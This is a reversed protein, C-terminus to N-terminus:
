LSGAAFTDCSGIDGSEIGRRLWRVREAASGHTFSEPAVYGQSRMQMRDDGISRAARLAEEVDGPELLDRASALDHAWVGALCDAQLEMRVSLANADDEGLRGRAAEFRDSIGLLNQVHHGVEHAIVYAQAFDGPAGFRDQLERYFSLDIYVKENRPCYFPGVAAQAFGCESEVADTFLVLKPERYSRGMKQFLGHWTDETKALVVSVFEALKEEEPSGQNRGGTTGGVTEETAYGGPAGPQLQGPDGGLLLYLVVLVLGGLGGGVGLRVARSGRRDEVNDSQRQGQWRM